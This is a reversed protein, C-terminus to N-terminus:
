PAVLRVKRGEKDICHLVFKFPQGGVFPFFFTDQDAGPDPSLTPHGASGLRVEQFPLDRQNYRRMPEGVVLFKRQYLGAVSPSADKMKRETLKVLTCRHGFPYLYGPYVVRVFQDRGMPAVHDWKLISPLGVASYPLTVWDGHLDLWAGLASLWLGEVDVPEPAIPQAKKGSGRRPARACSCTGTPATSRCASRCTTTSRHARRGELRPLARPRPGVGSARDRQPSEREDVGGGDPEDPKPRVGLRTHWLEVRHEAGEAGVPEKAHTWGGRDSPSIVLRFPANIATELPARTM